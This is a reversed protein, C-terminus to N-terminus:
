RGARAPATLQPIMAYLIDAKKKQGDTLMALAEGYIKAEAAVLEAQVGGFAQFLPTPDGGSKVANRILARAKNSDQHFPLVTERGKDLIGRFQKKQDKKLDLQDCVMDFMMREREAPSMPGRMGGGEGMGGGGGGRGGGGGGGGPGQALALGCILLATAITRM